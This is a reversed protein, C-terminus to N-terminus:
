KGEVGEWDWPRNGFDPEETALDWLEVAGNAIEEPGFFDDHIERKAPKGTATTPVPHNHPIVRLMTPLKFFPLGQDIALWRRLNALQMSNSDDGASESKIVLAAVRQDTKHDAVGIVHARSVQPHQCLAEEIEPANLKWGLFRIVTINLGQHTVKL